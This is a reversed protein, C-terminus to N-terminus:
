PVEETTSGETYNQHEIYRYSNLGYIGIKQIDGEEFEKDQFRILDPNTYGSGNFRKYPLSTTDTVETAFGQGTTPTDNTPM